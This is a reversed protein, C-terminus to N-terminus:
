RRHANLAGLQHQGHDHIDRRRGDATGEDTHRHERNAPYHCHPAVPRNLVYLLKNNVLGWAIKVVPNSTGPNVYIIRLMQGPGDVYLSSYINYMDSARADKPSGNVIMSMIRELLPSTRASVDETVAFALGDMESTAKIYVSIAFGKGDVVEEAFHQEIDVGTGAVGYYRAAGPSARERALEFSTNLANYVFGTPYSGDRPAEVTVNQPLAPLTM